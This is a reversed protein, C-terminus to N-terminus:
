QINKPKCTKTNSDFVSMDPDCCADVEGNGDSDYAKYDDLNNNNADRMFLSTCQASKSADKHVIGISTLFNNIIGRAVFSMVALFLLAIILLILWWPLGDGKKNGRM